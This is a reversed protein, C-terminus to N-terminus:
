IDRNLEHIFLTMIAENSELVNPRTLAVEMDRHYEKVSKSGQYMRQLKNYLDRAYTTSVFRSRLECKLDVWTYAYRKMGERIERKEYDHYDFCSLMQDVKMEYDLYSEVDGEGKLMDLKQYVEEQIRKLRGRTMLGEFTLAAVEKKGGQIHDGMYVDDKGEQLSNSRLNPAQTSGGFELPM